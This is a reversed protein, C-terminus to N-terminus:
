GVGARPRRPCGRRGGGVDDGEVFWCDVELVKEVGPIIEFLLVNTRALDEKKKTTDTTSRM